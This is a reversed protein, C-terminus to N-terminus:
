YNLWMTIPSQHCGLSICIQIHLRCVRLRTIVVNKKEKKETSLSKHDPSEACPAVRDDVSRQHGASSALCLLTSLIVRVEEPASKGFSLRDLYSVYVLQRQTLVLITETLGHTWYNFQSWLSTPLLEEFTWWNFCSNLWHQQCHTFVLALSLYHSHPHLWRVCM